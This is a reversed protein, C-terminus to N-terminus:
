QFLARNFFSDVEEEYEESEVEFDYWAKKFYEGVLLASVRDFNKKPDPDYKILEDITGLDYITHLNLKHNGDVDKGRPSVLWERLYIIAQSKRIASGMSMGYNRGLRKLHVNSSKDLIEPEEILRHLQRTRKGYPIVEGRDNEFGIQANYYTALAFLNKNYEDQSEPRGIYTAVLMDDPKSFKNPMKYVYAAGLSTGVPQDYPDHFIMYMGHPIKGSKDKFPAQYIVVAGQIWDAKTHPFKNIPRVTDDPRFKVGKETRILKGAVGLNIYLKSRILHNRWDNLEAVPFSNAKAQMFAEKPNWPYETLHQDYAKPDKATRRITEREAKEVEKAEKQKSNGDPDMFGVKNWFSPFFFGCVSGAAGEDFENEYAHLNYAEPNYFMSEFDITGGDMDGGTGFVVIQGTTINGDEVCPKSKLYAEKLNNFAGAEELFLLTCDKGRAAEANDMFTMAQIQSKFGKEVPQGGIYQFYSSKVHDQKNIKQRRKKWATAENFWDLYTVTMSMLGQPYLYKKDYAGLLVYSDRITNYTNAAIMANLYSFGKRRAKSVIMHKGLKRATELEETYYAHKDWFDPFGTVKRNLALDTKKIRGYNLFAYMHGTIRRGGVSYGNSCRNLEEKWFEYHGPTGPVDDCYRKYKEYHLATSRFNQTNVWM